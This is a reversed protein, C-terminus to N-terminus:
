ARLAQCGWGSEVHSGPLWCQACSASLTMWLNGITQPKGYDQLWPIGIGRCKM